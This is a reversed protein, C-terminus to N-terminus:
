KIKCNAIVPLHSSMLEFEKQLNSNNSIKDFTLVKGSCNLQSVNDTFILDNKEGSTTTPDAILNKLIQFYLLSKIFSDTHYKKDTFFSGGFFTKRESYKQYIFNVVKEFDILENRSGPKAYFPLLSVKAGNTLELFFFTPSSYFDNRLDAYEVLKMEVVRNNNVCTTYKIPNQFQNEEDIKNLGDMCTYQLGEKSILEQIDSAINQDATKINLLSLSDCKKVLELFPSKKSIWSKVNKSDLKEANWFCISFFISKPRGEFNEDVTVCSIFLLIIYLLSKKM